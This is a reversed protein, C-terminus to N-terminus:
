DWNLADWVSKLQDIIPQCSVGKNCEASITCVYGSSNAGGEIRQLLDTNVKPNVAPAFPLDNNKQWLQIIDKTNM